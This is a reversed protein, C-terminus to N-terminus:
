STRLRAPRCRDAVLTAVALVGASLALWTGASFRSRRM